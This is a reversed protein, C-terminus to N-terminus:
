FPYATGGTLSYPLVGGVYSYAKQELNNIGQLGLATIYNKRPYQLVYQPNGQINNTISVFGSDTLDADNRMPYSHTRFTSSSPTMFNATFNRHQGCYQFPTPMMDTSTFGITDWFSNTWNERTYDGWNFVQIGGVSDYIVLPNPRCTGAESTKEIFGSDGSM